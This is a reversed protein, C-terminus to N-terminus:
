IASPGWSLADSLKVHQWVHSLAPLGLSRDCGTVNYQCRGLWYPATPWLPFRIPVEEGPTVREVSQAVSGGGGGGGFEHSASDYITFNHSCSKTEYHLAATNSNLPLLAVQIEMATLLLHSTRPIQAKLRTKRTGIPKGNGM